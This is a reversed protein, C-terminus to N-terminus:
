HSGYLGLRCLPIRWRGERRRGELLLRAAFEAKRGRVRHADGLPEVLAHVDFAFRDSQDRIHARVADVDCLFRDAGGAPDDTGIIALVIHGVCGTFILRPGLIRLFRVLGNPRGLDRAPRALDPAEEILILQPNVFEDPQAGHCALHL